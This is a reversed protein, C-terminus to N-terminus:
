HPLDVMDQGVLLLGALLPHLLDHLHLALPLDEHEEVTQHREDEAEPEAPV